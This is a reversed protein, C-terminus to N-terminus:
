LQPLRRLESREAGGCGARGGADAALKEAFGPGLMARADEILRRFGGAGAARAGAAAQGRDGPRDCGMHEDRDDAGHAGADGDDDQRHRAAALEGGAGARDLRASEAGAEHLQAHGQGRRPRLLQLRGGHPVPDPLAAAGRGGAAVALEHPVAGRLAAARREAARRACINRSATRSSCRRTRAMRRRTTARDAVRGRAVDVPEQGQAAHEAGGGRSAGELIM